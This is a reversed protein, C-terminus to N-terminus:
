IVIQLECMVPAHDSPKDLTRLEQVVKTGVLMDVAEPSLLLHDIRLGHGREFGGGRYDWWSYIHEIPNLVRLADYYGMNLIARLHAREQANYCVTGELATADYVDQQLYAINYDGGVVLIERLSLLEQMHSRLHTLFQMKYAFKDSGVEQGNPVYVSAVRIAQNEHYTVAEIYRANADNYLHTRVDELPAKSLIAVGNYTKQGMVACNYGLEEIEMYPFKSEELKLEQLLVVDPSHSRLFGLLHELRSRISNVNWTVIRCNNQAKSNDNTNKMLM